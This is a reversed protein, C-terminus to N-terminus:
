LETIKVNDFYAEQEDDVFFAIKNSKVIIEDMELTEEENVIFVVNQGKKQIEFEMDKNNDRKARKKGITGKLPEKEERIITGNSCQVFWAFGKKVYFGMYNKTDKYDFLLGVEKDEGNKITVEASISFNKNGDLNTKCKSFFRYGEEGEIILHGDKIIAKGAEDEYESWGKSTEFDDHWIVRQAFLSYPLCLMAIGVLAFQIKKM